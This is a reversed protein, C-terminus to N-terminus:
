SSSAHPKNCPNYSMFSDLEIHTAEEKAEVVMM